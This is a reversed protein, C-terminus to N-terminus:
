VHDPTFVELYGDISQADAAAIQLEAGAQYFVGNLKVGGPGKIRYWQKGKPADPNEAKPADPGTQKASPTATSSLDQKGQIGPGISEGVPINAPVVSSKNDPKNDPNNAM